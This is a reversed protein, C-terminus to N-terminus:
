WTVAKPTSYESTEQEIENFQCRIQNLQEREQADEIRIFLVILPNPV